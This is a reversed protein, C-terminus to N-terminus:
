PCIQRISIVLTVLLSNKYTNGEGILNTVENKVIRAIKRFINPMIILQGERSFIIKRFNELEAVSNAGRM